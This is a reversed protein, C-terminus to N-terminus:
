GHRTRVPPTSPGASDPPNGDPAPAEAGDRDLAEVLQHVAFPRRLVTHIGLDRAASDVRPSRNPTLLVIRIGPCRRLTEGIAASWTPDDLDVDVLAVPPEADVPLERLTEPGSGEAVVRHRHLRVLGKLLLRTEESGGAIVVNTMDNSGGSGIRYPREWGWGAPTRGPALGSPPADAQVM